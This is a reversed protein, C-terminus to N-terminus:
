KAYKYWKNLKIIGYYCLIILFAKLKSSLKKTM